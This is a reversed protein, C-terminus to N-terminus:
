LARAELKLKNDIYEVYTEEDGVERLIDKVSMVRDRQTNTWALGHSFETLQAFNKDKCMAIASDLCEVDTESLYEMDPKKKAQVIFKNVFTFATVLDEIYEPKSFYSDGRVAKLMDDVRSPVPGYQMAIYSDGTISRSYLSLHRQDAFYLIKCIKHIDCRGGMKDLIYLVAQLTVDKDFMAYSKEM